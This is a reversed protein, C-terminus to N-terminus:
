PHKASAFTAFNGFQQGLVQDVGAVFKDFGHEATGSVRYTVVADTGDDKKALAISLVGSIAMDQMPGLAANMRLLKERQVMIVRGHEAGGDKWRECFCGGLETKLSLNSASGSWTHDKPWWLEPHGLAEWAQAPTATIHFRHEVIFGDTSGQKVEAHVVAYMTSLMLLAILFRMAIEGIAL